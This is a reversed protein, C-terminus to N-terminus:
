NGASDLPVLLTFNTGLASVPRTLEAGLQKALANILRSGLRMSTSPDFEAPLGVGEDRVSIQVFPKGTQVVRVWILGESSNPYAHKGANLAFSDVVLAAIGVKALENAYYVERLDVVGGSSPSIVLASIPFKPVDPLYPKANVQVPRDNSTHPIVNTPFTVDEINEGKAVAPFGLGVSMIAIALQAVPLFNTM